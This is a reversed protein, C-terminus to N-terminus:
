CDNIQWKSSRVLRDGGQGKDSGGVAAGGQGGRGGALTGGHRRGINLGEPCRLPPFDVSRLCRAM